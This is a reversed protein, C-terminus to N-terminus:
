HRVKGTQDWPRLLKCFDKHCSCGLQATHCNRPLSQMGSPWVSSLPSCFGVLYFSLHSAKDGDATFWNSPASMDFCLTWLCQRWPALETLVPTATVSDLGSIFTSEHWTFKSVKISCLATAKLERGGMLVLGYLSLIWSKPFGREKNILHIHWGNFARKQTKRDEHSGVPIQANQLM